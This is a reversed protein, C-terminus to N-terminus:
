NSDIYMGVVPDVEGLGTGVQESAARCGGHCEDWLNCSSCYAPKITKWSNVYDTHMLQDLKTEFINGIVVPSHNCIRMNGNIDFTVPMRHIDAACSFTKITDYDDPNLVCLPTCVNSTIIMKLEKAAENAEAFAKKLEEIDPILKEAHKLGEGGINYRTLMIQNIGLERIFEITKRLHAMNMKTLVIDIVVPAGLSQLMKVSEIVKQHSGSRRTMADHIDPDFSHLPLTFLGVGIDSLEKFKRLSGAFGNTIITVSVKKLRCYLVLESLREMLLPEGGTFTISEIKASSFLKKLTRFASTYSNSQAISEGPRKWINYCYLCDLNCLSTTEFIIYKLDPKM